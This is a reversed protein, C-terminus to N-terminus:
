AEIFNEAEWKEYKELIEKFRTRIDIKIENAKKLVKELREPQSSKHSEYYEIIKEYKLYKRPMIMPANNFILNCLELCNLRTYAITFLGTTEPTKHLNVISNIKNNIVLRIPEILNKMGLLNIGFSDNASYLSGDGMLLGHIFHFINNEEIWKPYQVTFTKNPICGLDNFALVLKKNTINLIYTNKKKNYFLPKNSNFEKNVWELLQKDHKQLEITISYKCDRIKISGDTILLGFLLYLNPTKIECYNENISYKQNEKKGDRLIVNKTKLIRSILGWNTNLENAIKSMSWGDLYLNTIVQQQEENFIKSKYNNSVRPDSKRLGNKFLLYSVTLHQLNFEEALSNITRGSKFLEIIKERPYSIKNNEETKKHLEIKNQRLVRSIVSRDLNYKVGLFRVSKGEKYENCIKNEIEKSTIIQAEGIARLQIHKKIEKRLDNYKINLKIAIDNVSLKEKQYLNIAEKIIEENM